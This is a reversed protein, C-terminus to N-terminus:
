FGGESRTPGAWNSGSEVLREGNGVRACATESDNTVTTGNGGAVGICAEGGASRSASKKTWAYGSWASLVYWVSLTRLIASELRSGLM